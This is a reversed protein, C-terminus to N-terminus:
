TQLLVRGVDLSAVGQDQEVISRAALILRPTLDLLPQRFLRRRRLRVGQVAPPQPLFVIQDRGALAKKFRHLPGFLLFVSVGQGLQADNVFGHIPRLFSQDIVTTRQLAIWILGVHDIPQRLELQAIDARRPRISQPLSSSSPILTSPHPILFFPHPILPHFFVVGVVARM